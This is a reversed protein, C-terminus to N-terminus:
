KRRHTPHYLFWLAIFPWMLSLFQAAGNFNLFKGQMWTQLTSVFYPNAPIANVVLLSILLSLAAVRRQAVQPAYVLGCLMVLGLLVGAEAGPTLWVFANEPSFQLASALAKAVLAAIALLSILLLKPARERLQCNLMLLAGTLGCASIITESLWYQEVSLEASHRLAGGLDIRADLLLSLWDSFIPLLQGHGFLYAQPFIQALPWLMLVILGPSATPKLWEQRVILLRGNFLFSDTLLLGLLAGVGVGLGNSFLDLNSPVRSPLFTQVAEMLGSLLIGCLTTVLFAALGRLKPYLAFVGLVGLPMYGVLNTLLDFMTWYHPMPALLYDFPSLGNGHWGSFPYWSAYVILLAYVLLGARAFASATPIVAPPKLSAIM